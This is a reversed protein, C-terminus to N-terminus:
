LNINYNLYNYITTDSLRATPADNLIHFELITDIAMFYDQIFARFVELDEVYENFNEDCVDDSWYHIEYTVIHDSYNCGIYTEDLISGVCIEYQPDIDSFQKEQNKIEITLGEELLAKRLILTLLTKDGRIDKCHPLLPLVQQIFRNSKQEESLNDAIIDQIVKNESVFAELKNKVDLKLKLLLLDIPAFFKYADEKEKEQKAYEEAFREKQNHQPLDFRDVPHFIFEPLSNYLSNRGLSLQQRQKVEDINLIDMYANRKHLGKFVVHFTGDPFYNLVDEANIDVPLNKIEM